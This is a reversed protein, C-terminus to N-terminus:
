ETAGGSGERRKEEIAAFYPVGLTVLRDFADDVAFYARIVEPDTLGNRDPHAERWVELKDASPVKREKWCEVSRSWLLSMNITLGARNPEGDPSGPTAEIPAVDAILWTLLISFDDRRPGIRLSICRIPTGARRYCPIKHGGGFETAAYDPLLLQM